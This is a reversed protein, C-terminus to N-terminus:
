SVDDLDLGSYPLSSATAFMAFPASGEVCRGAQTTVISFKSWTRACLQM